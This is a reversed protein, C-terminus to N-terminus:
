QKSNANLSASALHPSDAAFIGLDATSHAPTLVPAIGAIFVGIVLGAFMAAPRFAPQMILQLPAAAEAAQIQTLVRLEITDPPNCSTRDRYKRLLADLDPM